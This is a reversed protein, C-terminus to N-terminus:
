FCVEEVLNEELIGSYEEGKIYLPIPNINVDIKRILSEISQIYNQLKKRKYVLIFSPHHVPVFINNDAKYTSYNFSEDLSFSNIGVEKLVFTSVQKGLLFILKPKLYSIEDKLHFFCNKMEKASPYRIKGNDLPLCKVINTRHFSKNELFFEISSILKGSNTGPSLPIDSNVSTKVASLGVWFIDACSSNQILPKQNMCLGCQTCSKINKFLNNM